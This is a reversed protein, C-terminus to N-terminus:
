AGGMGMGLRLRLRLGRAVTRRVNGIVDRIGGIDADEVSGEAVTFLGGAGGHSRLLFEVNSALKRFETYVDDFGSEGGCRFVVEFGNFHNGILNPVSDIAIPINGNDTSEGSAILLVNSSSPLSNFMSLSRPNVSENSGTGNVHLKFESHGFLLDNM